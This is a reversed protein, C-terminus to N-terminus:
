LIGRYNGVMAETANAHPGVVAINKFKHLNLPLANNKNKLLVMGQRAADTAVRINDKSCVNNQNLSDFSPNGDFWGLRLLVIYNNILAQDVDSEKILGKLVAGELYDPYFSGCNLDLGLEFGNLFLILATNM